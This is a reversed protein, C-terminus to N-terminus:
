HKHGCQSHDHGDDANKAKSPEVREPEWQADSGQKPQNGAEPKPADEKGCGVCLGALMALASLVLMARKMM